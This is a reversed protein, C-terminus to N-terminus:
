DWGNDRFLSSWDFIVFVVEICHWVVWIVIVSTTVYHPSRSHRIGRISILIVCREKPRSVIVGSKPQGPAALRTIPNRQDSM